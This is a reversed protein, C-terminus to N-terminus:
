GHQEEKAESDPEGPPGMEGPEGVPDPHGASAAELEAWRADRELLLLERRVTSMIDVDSGSVHVRDLLNFILRVRRRM